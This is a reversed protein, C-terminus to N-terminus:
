RRRDARLLKESRTGEGYRRRLARRLAERRSQGAAMRRLREGEAAADALIECILANLSRRQERARRRLLEAVRPDLNRLTMASM